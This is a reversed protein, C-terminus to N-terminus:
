ITNTINIYYHGNLFSITPYFSIGTSFSLLLNKGTKIQLKEEVGIKRLLLVYAHITPLYPDTLRKSVLRKRFVIYSNLEYRAHFV